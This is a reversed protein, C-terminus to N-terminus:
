ARVMQLDAFPNLFHPDVAALKAEQHKSDMM